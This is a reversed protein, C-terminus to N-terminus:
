AAAPPATKTITHTPRLNPKPDAAGQKAQAQDEVVCHGQAVHEQLYEIEAPDETAYVGGVFSLKRTQLSPAGNKGPVPMILNLPCNDADATQRFVVLEPM